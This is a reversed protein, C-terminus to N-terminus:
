AKSHKGKPRYKTANLMHWELASVRVLVSMMLTACVNINAWLQISSVSTLICVRPHLAWAPNFRECMLIIRVWQYTFHNCMSLISVCWYLTCEDTCHACMLVIRVWQYTLHNCTSLHECLSSAAAWSPAKGHIHTHATCCPMGLIYTWYNKSQSCM